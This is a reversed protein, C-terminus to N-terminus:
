PSQVPRAPSINRWEATRYGRAEARRRLASGANVLVAEDAAEFEREWNPNGFQDVITVRHGERDLPTAPSLVSLPLEVRRHAQFGSRPAPNFLVIDM